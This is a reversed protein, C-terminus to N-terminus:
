TRSSSCLIRFPYPPPPTRFPSINKAEHLIRAEFKRFPQMVLASQYSFARDWFNQLVVRKVVVNVAVKQVVVQLKCGNGNREVDKPSLIDYFDGAERKSSVNGLLPVGLNL